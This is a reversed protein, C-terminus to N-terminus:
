TMNFFGVLVISARLCFEAAMNRVRTEGAESSSTGPPQILIVLVLKIISSIVWMTIYRDRFGFPPGLGPEPSYRWQHHHHVHRCDRIALASSVVKFGGFFPTYGTSYQSDRLTSQGPQALLEYM